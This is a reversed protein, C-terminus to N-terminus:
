ERAKTMEAAEECTECKRSVRCLRQGEKDGFGCWVTVEHETDTSFKWQVDLVRLLVNAHDCLWVEDGIRPVFDLDTFTTDLSSNCLVSVTVNM